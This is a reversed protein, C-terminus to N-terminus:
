SKRAALKNRDKWEKAIRMYLSREILFKVDNNVNVLKVLQTFQVFGLRVVLKAIFEDAFSSSVTKVGTFDLVIRENIRTLTNLVDNRLFEGSERTATGMNNKFVDYVYTDDQIMNDIRIDFGDFGGISGFATQINTANCLNLRFDISTSYFDRSLIPLNDYKKMEQQQTWMISARGSTISFAGKNERVVQYLGFLGNGQGKGDGVGEQIALSIADTQNKPKHKSKRLSKYIGIGSDYVCIAITKKAQHYQAM